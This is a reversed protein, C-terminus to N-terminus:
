NVFLVISCSPLTYQVYYLYRSGLQQILNFIAVSMATTGIQGWEERNDATHGWEDSNNGSRGTRGPTSWSMVTTGLERHQGLTNGSRVLTWLTDGNSPTTALTGWSNGISYTGM